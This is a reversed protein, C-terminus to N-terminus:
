ASEMEALKIAETYWEVLTNGLKGYQHITENYGAYEKFYETGDMLEVNIQDENKNKNAHDIIMLVNSDMNVRIYAQGGNYHYLRREASALDILELAQIFTIKNM